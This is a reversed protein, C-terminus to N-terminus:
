RPTQTPVADPRDLNGISLALATETSFIAARTEVMISQAAALNRQASAVEVYTGLGHKYAELAADFSNQSASLLATASEQKLFATKSDTYAQWVERVVADRSGALESEAARLESEAIRLNRKRIFGDFLPLEIAVGVGYVGDNGGFYPSNNASVDLQSYGGNAALSIKPYYAARAKQVGARGARVNALKAVLDPRQSLARDILSDLSDDFNKELPQDPVKAVNLASTPMIGLSEVLAAQADNLIGRAAELEFSAQASQQTAQLTEPKTALGHELRANAADALTEASRQFSEAAAVKERATNFDYFRRTVEFVIKQHTANFGVNAAMLKERAATVSAKREGFDFLLWKMNLAAGEAVAETTLTGGGTVSVDSGPGTKLTPFPVFAREYGAAASAVLYPYYASRSLGVGEAAQRAREWSSRTEPNNREAIDILEPLDFVKEPSIELQAANQKENLHGRALEKEYEDLGPPSWPRVASPPASDSGFAVTTIQFKTFAVLVVGLWSMKFSVTNSSGWERRGTPSMAKMNDRRNAVM